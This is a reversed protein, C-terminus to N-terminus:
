RLVYYAAKTKGQKKIVKKKMLDKLDRLVTDDSVDSFIKRFRNNNIYGNEELYRLIYEQRENLVVQGGIEKKLKQDKSLSLIKNKVKLLEDSLGHTFYELWVSLDEGLSQYTGLAAYYGVADTDYYEDLSFFRKFDYGDLYLSLTCVARATRGNGETFPHIRALEAQVIGAKILPNVLRSENNLWDLFDKIQWPVDQPLPPLFTVEGTISSRTSVFEGIRYRGTEDAPVIRDVVLRHLDLIDDEKIESKQDGEIQARPQLKIKSRQDQYLEIWKIVNRYNIIEQIERKKEELRPIAGALINKAEDMTLNNGEIHTSHHVTRVVANEKFSKEWAPVLPANEIIERSAEISAIGDLIRNTISFKPNFSLQEFNM